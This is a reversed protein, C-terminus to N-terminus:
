LDVMRYADFLVRAGLPIETLPNESAAERNEYWHAILQKMGTILPAPVTAGTTGYGTVFVIKIAKAARLDVPWTYGDRLVLEPIEGSDDLIYEDADMTTETNDLDFTSLSTVSAVPTRLLSIRRTDAGDLMSVPGERVGDWWPASRRDTPFRDMWQAWTQTILARGTYNEVYMRATKVLADILADDDSADVRLHAKADATSIPEAAPATVLLLGTKM